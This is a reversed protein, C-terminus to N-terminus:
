FKLFIAQLLLESLRSRQAVPRDVGGSVCSVRLCLRVRQNVQAMPVACVERM